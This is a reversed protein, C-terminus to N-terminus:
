NLFHYSFFLYCNFSSSGFNIYFDFKLLRYQFVILVFSEFYFIYCDFHDFKIYDIFLIIKKIKVVELLHIENSIFSFCKRWFWALKKKLWFTLYIKKIFILNDKDIISPNKKDTYINGTIEEEKKKWYSIGYKFIWDSIFVLSLRM